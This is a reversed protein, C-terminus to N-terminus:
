VVVVRFENNTEVPVMNMKFCESGGWFMVYSKGFDILTIPEMHVRIEKTGKPFARSEGSYVDVVGQEVEALERELKAIKERIKDARTRM